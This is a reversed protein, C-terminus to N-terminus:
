ASCGTKEARRHQNGGRVSEFFSSFLEFNVDINGTDFITAVNLRLRSDDEVASQLKAVWYRAKDRLRYLITIRIYLYLDRVHSEWRM